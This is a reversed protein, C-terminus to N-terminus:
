LFTSVTGPPSLKLALTSTTSTSSDRATTRTRSSPHPLLISKVSTRRRKFISPSHFHTAFAYLWFELVIWFYFPGTSPSSRFYPFKVLLSIIISLFLSRHGVINCGQRYFVPFPFFIDSLQFMRIQYFLEPFLMSIDMIKDTFRHIIRIDHDNGIKPLCLCIKIRM